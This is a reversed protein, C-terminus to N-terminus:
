AFLELIFAFLVFVFGWFGTFDLGSRTGPMKPSPHEVQLLHRDGQSGFRMSVTDKM